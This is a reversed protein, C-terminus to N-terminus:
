TAKPSENKPKIRLYIQDPANFSSLASHLDAKKKIIFPIWKPFKHKGKIKTKRVIDFTQLIINLTV